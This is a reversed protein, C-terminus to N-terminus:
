CLWRKRDNVHRERQTMAPLLRVVDQPKLITDCCKNLADGLAISRGCGRLGIGNLNRKKKM